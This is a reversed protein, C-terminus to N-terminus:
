DRSLLFLGFSSFSYMPHPPVCTVHRHCYLLRGKLGLVSGQPESVLCAETKALDQVLGAVGIARACGSSDPM